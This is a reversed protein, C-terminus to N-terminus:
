DEQDSECESESCEEDDDQGVSSVNGVFKGYFNFINLKKRDLPGSGDEFMCKENLGHNFIAEYENDSICTCTERPDLIENEGCSKRCKVPQFCACAEQDFRLGEDCQEQSQVTELM